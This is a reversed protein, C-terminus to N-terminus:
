SLQLSCTLRLQGAAASDGLLGAGSGLRASAHVPLAAIFFGETTIQKLAHAPAQIVPLCVPQALCSCFLILSGLLTLFELIYEAIILIYM